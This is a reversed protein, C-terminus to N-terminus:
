KKGKAATITNKLLMAITTLGVGGLRTTIWEAVEGVAVDIDPILKKGEWTIGGSIAVCGKKVMDPKIFNPVGIGCIVIDAKTTYEKINKINSHVVTVAANAYDAKMSLMLSLPRGLTPGRGVIVVNKGQVNINYYKLMEVIGAPTCPLLGEEQLVLKGLNYPTLGDADKNPLIHSVAENFNFHKPVPSQIMFADIESDKNFKYIAEILDSQQGNEPIHINFSNIGIEKCTKHKNNVYHKCNENDGVLITGLGPTKGKQKLNEVEYKLESLIKEAIPKGSMEKASM